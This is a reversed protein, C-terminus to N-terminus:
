LFCIHLLITDFSLPTFQETTTPSIGKFFQFLYYKKYSIDKLPGQRPM